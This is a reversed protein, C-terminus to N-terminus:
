SNTNQKAKVQVLDLYVYIAKVNVIYVICKCDRSVCHSICCKAKCFLQIHVYTHQVKRRYRMYIFPSETFVDNLIANLTNIVRQALTLSYSLHLMNTMVIIVCPSQPTEFWQFSSQKNSMKDPYCCFIDYRLIVSGQIRWMFPQYQPLRKWKRVDGHRGNNRIIKSTPYVVNLHTSTIIDIGNKDEKQIYKLWRHIEGYNRQMVSVDYHGRPRKLDGAEGNNVWDNIWACILSFMLAGRWQGKHPSNVPVPSNGACLALSASFPEM